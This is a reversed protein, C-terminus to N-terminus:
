LYCIPSNKPCLISGKVVKIVKSYQLFAMNLSCMIMCPVHQPPLENTLSLYLGYFIQTLACLQSSGSTEMLRFQSSVLM